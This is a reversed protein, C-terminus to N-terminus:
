AQGGRKNLHANMADQVRKASDQRKQYGRPERSAKENIADRIWQNLSKDEEAAKDVVAQKMVPSMLVMVKETYRSM